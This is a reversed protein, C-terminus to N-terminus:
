ICLHLKKPLTVLVYCRALTIRANRYISWKLKKADEDNSSLNRDGFGFQAQGRFLFLFLFTSLLFHFQIRWGNPSKTWVLSEHLNMDLTPGDDLRLVKYKFRLVMKQLFPFEVLENKPLSPSLHIRWGNSSKTWVLCELLTM